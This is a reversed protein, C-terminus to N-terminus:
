WKELRNTEDHMHEVRKVLSELVPGVVSDLQDALEYLWKVLRKTWAGGRFWDPKEIGRRKLMSLIQLKVRTSEDAIDTRCRVLERDDRLRQPPTWVTPLDNGALLFGRLQELIMQADKADTKQKASKPTK